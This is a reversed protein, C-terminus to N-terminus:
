FALRCEWWLQWADVVVVVVVAPAVVVVVLALVVAPVVLVAPVVVARVVAGTVVVVCLLPVPVQMWLVSQSVLSQHSWFSALSALRTSNLLSVSVNQTECGTRPHEQDKHFCQVGPHENSSVIWL